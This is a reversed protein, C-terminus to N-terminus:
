GCRVPPSSPSLADYGPTDSLRVTQAAGDDARTTLLISEPNSVFSVVLPSHSTTVVQIDDDALQELIDVLSGLLEPHVGNELEDVMVLSPPVDSEPLAAFAFIRLLGDSAQCANLLPNQQAERLRNPDLVVYPQIARAWTAVAALEPFRERDDRPDITALWSSTLTQTISEWEGANEDFRNMTRGVRDMLLDDDEFEPENGAQLREINAPTLLAVTEAAINEYRRKGLRVSWWLEDDDLSLWVGFTFEQNASALRPLDRYAWRHRNLQTALDTAVLGHLCLM